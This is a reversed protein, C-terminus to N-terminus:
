AFLTHEALIKVGMGMLVLGGALEAQSKLRAGFFVGAKTGAASLFLEVM